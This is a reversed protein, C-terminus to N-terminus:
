HCDKMLPAVVSGCMTEIKMLSFVGFLKKKRKGKDEVIQHLHWILAVSSM